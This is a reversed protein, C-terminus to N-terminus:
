VKGSEAKIRRALSRFLALSLLSILLLSFVAARYKVQPQSQFLLVTGGWILPGFISAAKGAMGYLGFFEGVQDPPSLEVLLIRGVVWVGGMGVGALPGVMWFATPGPSCLALVLAGAWLWLVLWYSWVAGKERTLWGMLLSGFMASATSVILFTSIQATNFGIAKSAYVSMFAIITHVVDLIVFHILIFHFLNKHRKFQGLTQKLTKFAAGLQVSAKKKVPDALFLFAPVSFLFYLAATPVFAASRGGEAVFPKVMLIGAISGLYGLAVGYGSVMGLSVGRAVNPLMANYFVLASQYCYNAAAFLLLGAVLEDAFGIMATCLVSVMTLAILPARRRGTQDALTGFLPVSVAVAFMSGSLALSYTIDEGGMDVTAWLAFYLSVVNMSFITNSFDYLAWSHIARYDPRDTM